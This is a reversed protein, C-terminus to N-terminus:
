RGGFLKGIRCLEDPSPQGFSFIDLPTVSVRSDQLAGQDTDPSLDYYLDSLDHAYRVIEREGKGGDPLDRMKFCAGYRSRASRSPSIELPHKAKFPFNVNWTVPNDLLAKEKLFAEFLRDLILATQVELHEITEEPLSYDDLYKNRTASDFQQSFAIAPIGAINAEFCAGLTGSSFIFSSGSNLGANIGSVVLDPKGGGFLDYVAVNVCDAPSGDVTYAHRGAVSTQELHIYGFRTMSKGKWSQEHKPVCVVLDGITELKRIIFQLLPSRHSDDNTLLIKM